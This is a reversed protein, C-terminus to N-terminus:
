RVHYQFIFHLIRCNIKTDFKYITKNHQWFIKLDRTHCLQLEELTTLVVFLINIENQLIERINKFLAM